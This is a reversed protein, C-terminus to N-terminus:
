KKGLNLKVINHVAIHMVAMNGNNGNANINNANFKVM